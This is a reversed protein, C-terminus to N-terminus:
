PKGSKRRHRYCGSRGHIGHFGYSNVYYLCDRHVALVPYLWQKKRLLAWILGHSKKCPLWYLMIAPLGPWWRVLQDARFDKVTYQTKQTTDM